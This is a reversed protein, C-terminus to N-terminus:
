EAITPTMPIFRAEKGSISPSLDDRYSGRRNESPLSEGSPPPPTYFSDRNESATDRSYLSSKAAGEAGSRPNAQYTSLSGDFISLTVKKEEENRVAAYSFRRLVKRLAEDLPDNLIVSVPQDGKDGFLLIEYGTIKSIKNLVDRLNEDTVVLNVVPIDSEKARGSPMLLLVIGLVMLAGILGPRLGLTERRFPQGKTQM